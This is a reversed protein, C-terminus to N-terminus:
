GRNKEQKLHLESNYENQTGILLDNGALLAVDGSGAVSSGRVTLDHGATLSVSDGNLESGQATQRSV